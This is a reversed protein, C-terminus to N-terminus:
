SKQFVDLDRFFFVGPHQGLMRIKIFLLNDSNPVDKKINIILPKLLNIELIPGNKYIIKLFLHEM